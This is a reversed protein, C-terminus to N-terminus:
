ARLSALFHLSATDMDTGAQHLSAAEDLSVGALIYAEALDRPMVATWRTAIVKLHHRPHTRRIELHAQPSWGHRCAWAIDEPDSLVDLSGDLGEYADLVQPTLEHVTYRKAVDLALGERLMPLWPALLALDLNMDIIWRRAYRLTQDDPDLGLLSLRRPLAAVARDQDYLTRMHVVRAPNLRAARRTRLSLGSPTWWPSTDEDIGLAARWLLTWTLLPENASGYGPNVRQRRSRLHSGETHPRTHTM